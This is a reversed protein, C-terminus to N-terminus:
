YDAIEALVESRDRSAAYQLASHGGDACGNVDVGKAILLEVVKLRGASSAIIM